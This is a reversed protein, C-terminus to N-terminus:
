GNDLIGEKLKKIESEYRNAKDMVGQHWEILDKTVQSQNGAEIEADFFEMSDHLDCLKRELEDIRKDM